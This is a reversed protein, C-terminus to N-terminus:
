VKTEKQRKATEEGRLILTGPPAEIGLRVQKGRIKVVLVRVNGIVVAEDEKRTLILMTEGLNGGPGGDLAKGRFGRSTSLNKDFRGASTCVPCRTTM